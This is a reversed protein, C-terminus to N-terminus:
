PIFESTYVSISSEESWISEDAVGSRVTITYLSGSILDPVDISETKNKRFEQGQVKTLYFDVNGAPKSWSLSISTETVTASLNEVKNPASFFPLHYLILTVLFTNTINCPSM